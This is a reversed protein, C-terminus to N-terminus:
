SLCRSYPRALSEEANSPIGGRAQLGTGFELACNRYESEQMSSMSVIKLVIKKIFVIVSTIFGLM